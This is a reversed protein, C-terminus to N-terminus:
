RFLRTFRKRSSSAGSTFSLLSFRAIREKIIAVPVPGERSRAPLRQFAQGVRDTALLPAQALMQQTLAHIIRPAGHDHPIRLKQEVLATQRRLHAQFQELREEDVFEDHTMVRGVCPRGFAHDLACALRVRYEPVVELLDHVLLEHEEVSGRCEVAKGDLRELGHADFSVRNWQMRQHAGGKIRVEVAVLSVM